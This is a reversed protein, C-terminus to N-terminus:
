YMEGRLWAAHEAEASAVERAELTELCKDTHGKGDCTRCYWDAEVWRNTDEDFIAGRIMGNDCPGFQPHRYGCCGGRCVTSLIM